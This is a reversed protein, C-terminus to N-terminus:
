LMRWWRRKRRRRASRRRASRRRSSRRASRSSGGSRKLEGLEDKKKLEELKNKCYICEGNFDNKFKKINKLCANKKYFLRNAYYEKTTRDRTDIIYRM